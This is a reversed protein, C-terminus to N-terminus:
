RMLALSGMPDWPDLEVPEAEYAAIQEASLFRKHIIVQYVFERFWEESGIYYGKIGREDGWSNEIKWRDPQGNGDFNVGTIVMAHNMRSDNFDLRQAKTMTADLGLMREAVFSQPDWVGVPRNGYKGADSGFWVPEGSRLQEIALRELEEMPLNLYRVAYEVTNGLFKVTYSRKFPKDYTPSNILSVYESLDIGVYKDYFEKPTLGRDVHYVKDKDEYTFDFREPPEGYLICLARYYGALMEEKRARAADEGQEAVTRRLVTIDRRMRSNLLSWHARTDTSQANDPMVEAPVVGYKKVIGTMMDWQGGDGIGDTIFDLTRDRIPRDATAIGAELFFNLKELKDWFAFYSGSLEIRDLNCREAVKERFINMSAFLWCRGSRKQNTVDSLHLDITFHNQLRAAAAADYTVEIFDNGSVTAAYVHATDDKRYRERYDAIMEATIPTANKM